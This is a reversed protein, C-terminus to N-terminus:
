HKARPKREQFKAVTYLVGGATNVLVGFWGLPELGVRGFLVAGLATTAVAKANGVITTTLASNVLTCMFLLLSLSAGLLLDLVLMAVFRPEGWSAFSLLEDREYGVGLVLPPLSLLANYYSAALSSLPRADAARAALVLYLAQLVCSAIAFAYGRASIALDGLGTLLAGLCVVLVSACVPMSFRRGRLLCDLAMAPLPTMRKLTQYVPVSSLRLASMGCFLNAICMLMVPTMVVALARDWLPFDLEDAVAGRGLPLYKMATVVVVTLVNQMFILTWVLGFSWSTLLAKNALTTVVSAVAYAVAVSANLWVHPQVASAPPDEISLLREGVEEEDKQAAQTLGSAHSDAM